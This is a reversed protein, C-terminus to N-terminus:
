FEVALRLRVTRGPAQVGFPRFRSLPDVYAADTLNDVALTPRLTAGGPLAVAAAVSADWVVYAATPREEPLEPRDQSANFTPGLRVEVDRLAGLRDARYELVAALRAPPVFPLPEGTARNTGRTADASLGLGFGRLVAPHVDLSAEAGALRADAQTYRYVAFGDVEEGTARPFIYQDVRNVFVSAEASVAATLWRLTGDLALATEPRLAADGREYRVTGEHVGDGYLEILAPARFARGVNAAVSLGPRVRWAAGVAGTVAGYTRSGAAVGLAPTAEVDLRRGDVRLGADLTLPGFVATEAAYLAGNLTRAGPILTEEALTENRQWLGSVGVTGYVRAVPRHHFRADVTGTTLRLYLAPEAAVGRPAAEEAGEFERRRNQQLATVVELRGPAAPLNLRLTARDHTVRQHPDSITFRGGEGAAGEELLEPEFLAIEADYRGVEGLLTAAGLRQGLRLMASGQRLATNPVLGAPTGVQGSGVVGVRAEYVTSGTRGGVRVDAAGLPTGTAAGVAVRGALAAHATFLNDTDTQVVGGLADSGYLLSSPGRVVEIRDVDASGIEPGHEDGWGQGEQRVGDAVVLVRQATLGRVVPKAVGPGTRLLRVGAVGDLADMPTAASARALVREDVVAVSQPTDLVDSAQARATVTVPASEVLTPTLAVDLTVPAGALTVERTEARYGVFSFVVRARGAARVVVAYRGDADAAAGADLDSLVVTAGPLPTGTEADTVRGALTQQALVPAALLLLALVVV